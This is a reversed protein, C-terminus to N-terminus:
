KFLYEGIKINMKTVFSDILIGLVFGLIILIILFMSKRIKKFLEKVYM